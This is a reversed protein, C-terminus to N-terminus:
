SNILDDYTLFDDRTFDDPQFAIHSDDPHKLLVIPDKVYIEISEISNTLCTEHDLPDIDYPCSEIAQRIKLDDDDTRWDLRVGAVQAFTTMFIPLGQTEPFRQTLAEYCSSVFETTSTISWVGDPSRRPNQNVSDSTFTEEDPYEDRSFGGVFSGDLTYVEVRPSTSKDPRVLLGVWAGRQFEGPEADDGTVSSITYSDSVLELWANVTIKEFGVRAVFGHGRALKVVGMQKKKRSAM